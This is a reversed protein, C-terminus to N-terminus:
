ARNNRDTNWHWIVTYDEYLYILLWNSLKHLILYAHFKISIVDPIALVVDTCAFLGHHCCIYTDITSPPWWSYPFASKLYTLCLFFRRKVILSIRCCYKQSCLRQSWTDWLDRWMGCSLYMCPIPKNPIVWILFLFFFCKCSSTKAKLFEM